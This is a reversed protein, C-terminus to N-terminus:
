IYIIITPLIFNVPGGGGGGGVVIVVVVVVVIVVTKISIINKPLIFNM